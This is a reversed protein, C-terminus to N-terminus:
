TPMWSGEADIGRPIYIYIYVCVYIHHEKLPEDSLLAISFTLVSQIMYITFFFHKYLIVCRNRIVSIELWDEAYM